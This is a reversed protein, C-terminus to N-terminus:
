QLTTTRTRGWGLPRSAPRALSGSGVTLLHSQQRERDLELMEESYGSVISLSLQSNRPWVLIIINSGPPIDEPVSVLYETQSFVPPDNGNQM